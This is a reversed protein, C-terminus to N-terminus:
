LRVELIGSLLTNRSLLTKRTSGFRLLRLSWTYLGVPLSLSEEETLSLNFVGDTTALTGWTIVRSVLVVDGLSIELSVTDSSMLTSGCQECHERLRFPLPAGFDGQSIYIDTGFSYM